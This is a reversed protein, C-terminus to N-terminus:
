IIITIVKIWGNGPRNNKFPNKRPHETLYKQFSSKLDNAKKPFGKIRQVGKDM